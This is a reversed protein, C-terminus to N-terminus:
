PGASLCRQGERGMHLHIGHSARYPVMEKTQGDLVPIMHHHAGCWFQHGSQPEPGYTLIKWDEQMWLGLRFVGQGAGLALGCLAVLAKSDM